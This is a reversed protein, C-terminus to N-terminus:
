EGVENENWLDQPSHSNKEELSTFKFPLKIYKEDEIERKAGKKKGKRKEEKKKGRKKKKAGKGKKAGKEEGKMKEGAMMRWGGPLPPINESIYVGSFHVTFITLFLPFTPSDYSSSPFHSPSKVLYINLLM